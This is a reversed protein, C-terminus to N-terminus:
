VLQAMIRHVGIALRLGVLLGLCTMMHSKRPGHVGVAGCVDVAGLSPRRPPIQKVEIAIQICEFGSALM